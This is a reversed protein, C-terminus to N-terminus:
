MHVIVLNRVIKIQTVIYNHRFIYRWIAILAIGCGMTHDWILIAFREFFSRYLLYYTICKLNEALFRFLGKYNIIFLYM